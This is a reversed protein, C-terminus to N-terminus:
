LSTGMGNSCVGSPALVSGHGAGVLLGSVFVAAAIAQVGVAPFFVATRASLASHIALGVVAASVGCVVIAAVRSHARLSRMVKGTAWGVPLSLLIALILWERGAPGSGPLVSGLLSGAVAVEFCLVVFMALSALPAVLRAPDRLAATTGIAARALIAFALQRWFWTRSRHACEEILDGALPDNDALLRNVLAIRVRATPTGTM